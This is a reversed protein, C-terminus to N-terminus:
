IVLVIERRLEFQEQVECQKRGPTTTEGIRRGLYASASDM